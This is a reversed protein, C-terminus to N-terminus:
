SEGVEEIATRYQEETLPLYHSELQNAIASVRAGKITQLVIIRFRDQTAALAARIGDPDHGDVVTVDADFGSLRHALPDM